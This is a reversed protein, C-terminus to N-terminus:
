RGGKSGPASFAPKQYRATEEPTLIWIGTVEGQADLRLLVNAPVRMAAPMIVLNQENYIKAGPGIHLTRDKVVLYPYEFRSVVAFRADAPLQRAAGLGPTHV